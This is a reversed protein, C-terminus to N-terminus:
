LSDSGFIKGGKLDRRICVFEFNIILNDHVLCVTHINIMGSFIRSICRTPYKITFADNFFIKLRTSPIKIKRDGFNDVKVIRGM